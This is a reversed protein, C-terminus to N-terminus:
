FPAPVASHLPAKAQSTSRALVPFDFSRGPFPDESLKFHWWERSYSGFGHRQMVRQLLMRNSHAEEGIDLNGTSARPDLCDYGTGFDITGDDFRVGKPATCPALPMAADFPPPTQLASPVLGLDVTSGRSHASHSSLYGRAFLQSKNTRPFFEAKMSSHEQSRSWHIFDMVARMPRYCDWVILSLNRGAVETQVRQLAHAARKTLICASARYGDAPRGMFNHNGAYRIDQRITPAVESLYVFGVPLEAGMAAFSAAAVSVAIARFLAAAMVRKSRASSGRCENQLDIQMLEVHDSRSM